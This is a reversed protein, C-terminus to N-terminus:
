KEDQFPILLWHKVFELRACEPCDAPCSGRNHDLLFELQEFLVDIANAPAIYCNEKAPGAVQVGFGFM